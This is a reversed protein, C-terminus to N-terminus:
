KWGRHFLGAGKGSNAPSHIINMMIIINEKNYMCHSIIEFLLNKNKTSLVRIQDNKM